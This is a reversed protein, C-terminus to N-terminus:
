VTMPQGGAQAPGQGRAQAPRQGRAQAPGQGGAQAAGSQRWPRGRGGAQPVGAGAQTGRRGTEM